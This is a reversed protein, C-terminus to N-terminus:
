LTFPKSLTAKDPELGKEISKEVWRIVLTRQRLEEKWEPSSYRHELNICIEELRRYPDTLHSSNIDKEKTPSM